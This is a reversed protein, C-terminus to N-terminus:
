VYPPNVHLLSVILGCQLICKVQILRVFIILSDLSQFLTQVKDTDYDRFGQNTGAGLSCLFGVKEKDLASTQVTFGKLSLFTNKALM